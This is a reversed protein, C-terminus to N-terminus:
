QSVLPIAKFTGASTYEGPIIEVLRNKAAHYFYHVGIFREPYSVNKALESVSFSSTNTAIITDKPLISDLKKFLQAKADFNEFIAEIVLEAKILDSLETSGRIQSLIKGAKEPAFIKKEIGENLTDKIRQLGKNIFDINTDLLIVEFGEMAFKQALASGMTGAGAIGVTKIIKM